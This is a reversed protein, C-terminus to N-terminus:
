HQIVLRRTTKGKENEVSVLYVGNAFSSTALQTKTLRLQATLMKRGTIDYVNLSSGTMSEDAIVNVINNSPNPFLFLHLQEKDQIKFISTPNLEVWDSVTNTRVGANYDFYIAATNDIQTGPLLNKKPHITYVIFGNSLLQNAGSDPLLINNFTFKLVRNDYLAIEYSHSFAIVELTSIDLDTDLSDLVVVKHATDNGTNQFRITYTLVSSDTLNGTENKNTAKSTKDNPDFSGRVRLNGSDINNQPTTDGAIPEVTACYSVYSDLTTYTALVAEVFIHRHELVELNSFNWFHTRGDVSDFPPISQLFLFHSDITYSVFGNEVETGVNAFDIIQHSLFGPIARSISVVVQKDHIGPIPISGFSNGISNSHTSDLTTTITDWCDHYWYPPLLETITYTGNQQLFQFKGDGDTYSFINNPLLHIARHTFKFEPFDITCNLNTDAYCYGDINTECDACFHIVLTSDPISDPSHYFNAMASINYQKSIALDSYGQTFDRQIQNVLQLNYDYQTVILRPTDIDIAWIFFSNEFPIIGRTYTTASLLKAHLQSGLTDIVRALGGIFCIISDGHVIFNAHGGQLTGGLENITNGAPDIRKYINCILNYPIADIKGPTLVILNEHSDFQIKGTYSDYNPGSFEKNWIINGATDIKYIEEKYISVGISDVSASCFVNGHKDSTCQVVILNNIGFSTQYIINGDPNFKRVTVIDGSSTATLAIVNQFADLSVSAEGFAQYGLSDYWLQNGHADIKGLGYLDKYYVGNSTALLNGVGIDARYIEKSWELLGYKNLKWIRSTIQQSLGTLVYTNGISDVDIQYSPSSWSVPTPEILYNNWDNVYQAIVVRTFFFLLAALLSRKM